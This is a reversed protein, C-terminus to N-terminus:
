TCPNDGECHLSLQQLGCHQRLLDLYVWRDAESALIFQRANGRQTAHYATDVAMVRALRAM